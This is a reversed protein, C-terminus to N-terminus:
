ESHTVPGFRVGLGLGSGLWSAMSYKTLSTSCQQRANKPASAARTLAVSSVLPLHPPCHAATLSIHLRACLRSLSSM